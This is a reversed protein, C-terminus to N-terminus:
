RRQMGRSQPPRHVVASPLLKTYYFEINLTLPLAFKGDRLTFLAEWSGGGFWRPPPKYSIRHGFGSTLFRRLTMNKINFRLPTEIMKYDPAM